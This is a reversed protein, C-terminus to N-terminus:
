SRQSEYINITAKPPRWNKGFRRRIVDDMTLLRTLRCRTKKSFLTIGRGNRTPPDWINMMLERDEPSAVFFQYYWWTGGCKGLPHVHRNYRPADEDYQWVTIFREPFLLFLTNFITQDKGAFVDLKFIYYDHYRILTESNIRSPSMHPAPHKRTFFRDLGHYQRKHVV